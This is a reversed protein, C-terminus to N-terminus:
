ENQKSQLAGNMWEPLRVFGDKSFELLLESQDGWVSPYTECKIEKFILHLIQTM